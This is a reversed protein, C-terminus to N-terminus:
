NKPKLEIFLKVPVILTTKLLKNFLFLEITKNHMVSILRNLDNYCSFNYIQVIYPEKNPIILLSRKFYYLTSALLVQKYLM